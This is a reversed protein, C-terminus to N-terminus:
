TQQVMKSAPSLHVTGDAISDFPSLRDQICLTIFCYGPTSHDHGALRHPYVPPPGARRRDAKARGPGASYAGKVGCRIV